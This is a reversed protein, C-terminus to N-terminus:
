KPRKPKYIASLAYAKINSGSTDNEGAVQMKIWHQKGKDAVALKLASNTSGTFNASIDTGSQWDGQGDVKYKLTVLSRSSGEVKLNRIKKDIM